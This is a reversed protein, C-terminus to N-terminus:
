EVLSSKLVPPSPKIQLFSTLKLLNTPDLLFAHEPMAVDKFKPEKSSAVLLLDRPCDPAATTNPMVDPFRTVTVKDLVVPSAWREGDATWTVATSCQSTLALIANREKPLIWSETVV